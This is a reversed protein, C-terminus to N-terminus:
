INYIYDANRFGVNPFLNVAVNRLAIFLDGRSDICEDHGDMTYYVCKGGYHEKAVFYDVDEDLVFAMNLTKCLIRFAENHDIDIQHVSKAEIDIIM